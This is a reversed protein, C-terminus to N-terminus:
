ATRHKTHIYMLAPFLAAALQSVRQPAIKFLEVMCFLSSFRQGPLVIGETTIAIFPICFICLHFIFTDFARVWTYSTCPKETYKTDAM